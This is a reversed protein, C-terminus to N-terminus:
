KSTLVNMWRKAQYATPLRGEFSSLGKINDKGCVPCVYAPYGHRVGLLFYCTHEIYNKYKGVYFGGFRTMAVIAVHSDMNIANAKIWEYDPEAKESVTDEVGERTIHWVEGGLAKVAEFENRFRLDDIVQLKDQKVKVRALKIFHDPNNNRISTALEILIQRPTKEWPFCDTSDKRDRDDFWQRPVDYLITAADKLPAAFSITEEGCSAVTSKGVGYAGHLAILM